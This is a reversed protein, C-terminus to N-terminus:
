FAFAIGATARFFNWNEMWGWGDPDNSNAGVGKFYRFDGRVGINPHFYYQIGGGVDVVGTNRVDKGLYKAFGSITSRMLGGGIVVYPRVRQSKSQIMAPHIVLSATATMLNNDGLGLGNVITDTAGFFAPYYAFDVEASIVGPGWFDIAVGMAKPNSFAVSKFPGSAFLDGGFNVGYYVCIYDTNEDKSRSGSQGDQDALAVPPVLLALCLVALSLTRATM